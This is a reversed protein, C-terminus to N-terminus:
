SLGILKGIILAIPFAILTKEIFLIVMHSLKFPLESKMMIVGSESMCILQMTGLVCLIFKSLQSEIGTAALFPLLLDAFGTFLAPAVDAAEPVGLLNLVPVMPTAIIKFVPTFEALALVITALTIITPFVSMYLKFSNMTGNKIMQGVSPATKAKEYGQNFALKFSGKDSEQINKEGKYYEDPFLSIPPIRCLIATSVIGVLICTMFYIGFLNEQMGAISTSYSFVSPFTIICFGVSITAAERATYYGKKYESETTLLGISGNGFWASLSLVASRGPLRFLPRFVPRLLNGILEMAGYDTLLPLMIAGLIFLILLSPILDWIMLGGTNANWVFEPGIKFYALISILFALGRISLNFPSVDFCANFYSSREKKKTLLAYLGGVFSLASLVVTLFPLLTGTKGSIFSKAWALPITMSGDVKIPCMFFFIGIIAGVFMKIIISTKKEEAM